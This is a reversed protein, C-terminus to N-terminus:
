PADLSGALRAPGLSQRKANRLRCPPPFRSLVPDTRAELASRIDGGFPRHPTARARQGRAASRPLHDADQPPPTCARYPDRVDQRWTSEAPLTAAGTSRQRPILSGSDKEDLSPSDQSNPEGFRSAAARADRNVPYHAGTLHLASVLSTGQSRLALPGPLAFASCARPSTEAMVPIVAFSKAHYRLAARARV